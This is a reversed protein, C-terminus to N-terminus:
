NSDDKHSHNLHNVKKKEHLLRCVINERSQLESTHEESRAHRGRAGRPRCARARRARAVLWLGRAPRAHAADVARGRALTRGGPSRFLTTYPFLTTLPHWRNSLVDYVRKKRIRRNLIKSTS